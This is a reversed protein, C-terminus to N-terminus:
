YVLERLMLHVAVILAIFYRDDTQGSAIRVWCEVTSNSNQLFLADSNPVTAYVSDTTGDFTYSGGYFNSQATTPAANGNVSFTLPTRSNNIQDSYDQTNGNLPVALILNSAYADTRVGVTAVNGGNVTNSYATSQQKRLLILDVFNVPSTM